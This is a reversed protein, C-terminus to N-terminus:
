YSLIRLYRLETSFLIRFNLFYTMLIFWFSVNSSHQMESPLFLRIGFM